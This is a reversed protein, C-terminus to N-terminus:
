ATIQDGDEDSYEALGAPSSVAQRDRRRNGAAYEFWDFQAIAAGGAGSEAYMGVFVGTFGGAMEASLFRTSVPPGTIVTGDSTEARFTYAEPDGEVTLTVEPLPVEGLVACLSLHGIVQRLIIQWGRDSRRLGFAYFYRENMRVCLGTEDGEEDSVLELATRAVFDYDQQRRGVFAPTEGGVLDTGPRLTLWGPRASLLGPDSLPRRVTQWTASLRTQDFEELVGVSRPPAPPLAPREQVVEINSGAGVRPWGDATWWVSALLTERGLLHRPWQGVPRV